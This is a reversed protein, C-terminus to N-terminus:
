YGAMEKEGTLTKWCNLWAGTGTDKVAVSTEVAHPFLHYFLLNLRDEFFAVNETAM